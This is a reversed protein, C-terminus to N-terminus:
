RSNPKLLLTLTRMGGALLHRKFLLVVEGDMQQDFLWQVLQEVLDKLIRTRGPNRCWTIPSMSKDHCKCSPCANLVLKDIRSLQRHTGQFHSVHKTVWVRFMEPFSEMVREMEEWYVFPFNEKSVM